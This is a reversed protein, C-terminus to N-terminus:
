AAQVMVTVACWATTSDATANLVSGHQSKRVTAPM